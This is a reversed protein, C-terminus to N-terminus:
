SFFSFMCESSYLLNHEFTLEVGKTTLKFLDAPMAEYTGILFKVVPLQIVLTNLDHRETVDVPTAATENQKQM